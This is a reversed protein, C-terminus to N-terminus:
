LRNLVNTGVGKYKHAHKTPVINECGYGAEHTETASVSLEFYGALTEDSTKLQKLGDIKNHSYHETSVVVDKATPKSCGMLVTLMIM